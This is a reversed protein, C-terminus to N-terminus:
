PVARRLRAAISAFARMEGIETEVIVRDGEAVGLAKAGEAALM